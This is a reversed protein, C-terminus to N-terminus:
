LWELVWIKTNYNNAQYLYNRISIAILENLKIGHTCM